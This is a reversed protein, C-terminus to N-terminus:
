VNVREEALWELLLKSVEEPSTQGELYECILTGTDRIAAIKDKAALLFAEANSLMYALEVAHDSTCTFKGGAWILVADNTMPSRLSHAPMETKSYHPSGPMPCFGKCQSWDDGSVAGCKPCCTGHVEKVTTM